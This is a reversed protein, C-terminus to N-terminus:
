TQQRHKQRTWDEYHDRGSSFRCPCHRIAQFTRSRATWERHFTAYVFGSKRSSDQCGLGPLDIYWGDREEMSSPMAAGPESEVTTKTKVHRATFSGQQRREGTDISDITITVEAGTMEGPPVPRARKGQEGRDVIPLEAYLKADDNLDIRKGEDCQSISVFKTPFPKDRFYERRQKAGKLYLTEVTSNISDNRRTKIKLDPFNPINPNALTASALCIFLPLLKTTSPGMITGGPFPRVCRRSGNGNASALFQASSIKVSVCRWRRSSGTFPIGPTAAKLRDNVNNINKVGETELWERFAGAGQKAYVPIGEKWTARGCLVGNFKVPSGRWNWRRPSNPM